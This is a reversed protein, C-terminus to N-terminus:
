NKHVQINGGVLPGAAAYPMAGITSISFTDPATRSSGQGCDDVDVQFNQTSPVGTPGTVNASGTFKAHTNVGCTGDSIVLVSYSLAKITVNAGHDNYALNGTPNPAGVSFQVVFGFTAKGGVSANEGTQILLTAPSMTGDPQIFGGGTVKGPTSSVAEPEAIKTV